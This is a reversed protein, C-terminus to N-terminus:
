LNHRFGRRHLSPAYDICRGMPFSSTQGDDGCRGHTSSKEFSTTVRWRYGNDLQSSLDSPRLSIRVSRRSTRSADVRGLRDSNPHTGPRFIEGYLGRSRNYRVWVFRDGRTGKTGADLYFGVYSEDGSLARSGWREFTRVSHVVRAGDHSHRITRVDLRGPTDDRDPLAGSDAQATGVVVGVLVAALALTLNKAPVDSIRDMVRMM